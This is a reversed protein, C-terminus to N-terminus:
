KFVCADIDAQPMEEMYEYVRKNEGIFLNHSNIM